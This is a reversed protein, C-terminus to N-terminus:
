QGHFMLKWNRVYGSKVTATNGYRNEGTIWPEIMAAARDDPEAICIWLGFGRYENCSYRFADMHYFFRSDGM